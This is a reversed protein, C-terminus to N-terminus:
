SLSPILFFCSRLVSRGGCNPLLIGLNLLLMTLFISIFIFSPVYSALLEPDLTTAVLPM